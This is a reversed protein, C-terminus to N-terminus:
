FEAAKATQWGTLLRQSRQRWCFIAPLRFM